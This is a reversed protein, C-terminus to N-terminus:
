LRESIKYSIKIIEEQNIQSPLAHGLTIVRSRAYELISSLEESQNLENQIQQKAAVLQQLENDKDALKRQQPKVFYNNVVFVITIVVLLMLLSKQNKNAKM